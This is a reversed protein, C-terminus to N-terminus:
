QGLAAELVRIALLYEDLVIHEDPTHDLAADGPGYAVIPCRWAPGVINMDATGTKLVLSPQMSQQRIARTLARALPSSREAQFAPVAGQISVQVQPDFGQVVAALPDPLLDLPLRISIEAVAWESLGDGGSNISLLTPLLQDFAREREANFAAAYGAIQQWLASIREPTTLHDHASHTCPGAARCTLRLSGKYGLTVRNWGSPEGVICQDPRYRDVVCHAGRSSAVEEEVCGIVVIRGNLRNQAHLRAAAIVFAALSGKADVAGRGYLRGSEQRVPIAGPVTDIHGLLMTEPRGQGISGVANGAGDISATFGLAAMQGVLYEVAAREDGSVSPIAVLEHLLAIAAHDDPRTILQPAVLPEHLLAQETM